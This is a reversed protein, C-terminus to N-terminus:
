ARVGETSYRLCQRKDPIQGQGVGSYSRLWGGNWQTQGRDGQTFSLYDQNRERLGGDLPHGLLFLIGLRLRGCFPATVLIGNNLQQFQATCILGLVLMM